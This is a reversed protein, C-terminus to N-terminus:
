YETIKCLPCGPLCESKRCYTKANQVLLAHYENFLGIDAPLNDTFLKQLKHYEIDPATGFHRAAIRKTYADIVFVPRELAYLLIADATEPGVGNVALLSKRLEGTEADSPRNLWWTAVAKLRTAKLRHFGSPRILEALEELSLELAKRPDLADNEKLQAIAKAANRWNTNQVLVAGTCMEWPSEAPWWHQEGFEDLLLEFAKQYISM